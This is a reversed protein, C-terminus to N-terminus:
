DAYVSSIGLYEELCLGSESIKKANQIGVYRIHWPEYAYGTIDEKDKPFRIIFGYKVCNEAIWRAEKTDAFSDETSNIDMSLGSQHESFGPRASVRDAYDKGKNQVHIGYQVEQEAYSRYGSTIYLFLGDDSADEQMREFASQAEADLGPDYSAPLPYSKNVILIGDIYTRGDIVQTIHSSEVSETAPESAAPETVTKLMSVASADANAPVSQTQNKNLVIYFLLLLLLIVFLTLLLTGIRKRKRRRGSHVRRAYVYNYQNNQSM